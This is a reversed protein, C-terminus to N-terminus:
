SLQQVAFTIDSRTTTLYLLRGVLRRYSQVDHYPPGDDQSLHSGPEMPTSVPKCGLTGTDNLLKLCYQRQCPSIGHASHAVEIGLFFKLIGLNKIGFTSDFETRM